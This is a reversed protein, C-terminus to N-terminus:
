ARSVPRRQVGGAWRVLVTMEGGTFRTEVTRTVAVTEGTPVPEEIEPQDSMAADGLEALFQGDRAGGNAVELSVDLATGPSASEPVRFAGLSVDPVRM